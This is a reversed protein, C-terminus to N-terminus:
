GSGLRLAVLDVPQAEIGGGASTPAQSTQAVLRSGSTLIAAVLVPELIPARVLVSPM